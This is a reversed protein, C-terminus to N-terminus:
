DIEYINTNKVWHTEAKKYNMDWCFRVFQKIIQIPVLDLGEFIKDPEIQHKRYLETVIWPGTVKWVNDGIKNIINYYATNIAYELLPHKINKFLMFDNGVRKQDRVFLLGVNTSDYLDIIPSLAQIDSDVYIGGIQYLVCYRFFDAKMAPVTCKMFAKAMDLGFQSFIFDYGQETNYLDYNFEPNKIKWSEQLEAVEAPPPLKDWFQIINKTTICQQNLEVQPETMTYEKLNISNSTNEKQNIAVFDHISKLTQNACSFRNECFQIVTDRYKEYAQFYSDIVFTMSYVKREFV